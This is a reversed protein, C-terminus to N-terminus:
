APALVTLSTAFAWVVIVASGVVLWVFARLTTRARQQRYGLAVSVAAGLAGLAAPGLYAAHPPSALPGLWDVVSVGFAVAWYGFVVLGVLRLFGRVV